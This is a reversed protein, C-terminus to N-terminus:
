MPFKQSRWRAVLNRAASLWDPYTFQFGADLLRGPIVQRSKLILESETRMLFTGIEIM